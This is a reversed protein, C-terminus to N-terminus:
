PPATILSSTLMSRGNLTRLFWFTIPFCFIASITAEGTCSPSCRNRSALVVATNIAFAINNYLFEAYKQGLALGKNGELSYGLWNNPVEKFNFWAGIEKKTLGKEAKKYLFHFFKIIEEHLAKYEPKNSNFILMPDVFLPVDCILSIDVAGYAEILESSVNFKESFFM